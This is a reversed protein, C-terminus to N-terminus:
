ENGNKIEEKRTLYEVWKAPVNILSILDQETKSSIFLEAALESIEKKFHKNQNGFRALYYCARWRWKSWLKRYKLDEYDMSSNSKKLKEGEDEYENYIMQLRNILSRNLKKKQDLDPITKGTEICCYLHKVKKSIIKFDNWSMPTGLFSIADKSKETSKIVRSLKKASDEAEGALKAAKFLPYRNPFISIGASLSFAPNNCTFKKFEEYMWIALDPLINWLGIIFVDDGGSYIIQVNDKISIDSQNESVGDIANWYKDKIINLYSSFFFDLLTSMQVVRSITAQGMLGNRFIKGLNDVDMRLVGLRKIGTANKRIDDYEGSLSWNGGYFKWGNELAKGKKVFEDDNVFNLRETENEILYKYNDNDLFSIKEFGLIDFESNIGSSIAKLGSKLEFGINQSIFQEESIYKENEDDFLKYINGFDHTEIKQYEVSGINLKESSKYNEIDSKYCIDKGTGSCQIVDGSPEIPEFFNIDKILTSFKQHKSSELKKNLEDWKESFKLVKKGEESVKGIFDIGNLKIFDCIIGIDGNYEKLLKKELEILIKSIKDITMGTNAALIYFKGGSSYLINALSLDLQGDSVIWRSISESLQQLFFSRGKLSKSAGKHSINYIYNQIGTLDGGFLLYRQENRNEVVQSDVELPKEFKEELYQTLCLAIASTIRSHEHLSVDPVTKWSSSPICWFYKKSLNYITEIQRVNCKEMDTQFEKFRKEYSKFLEKENWDNKPFLYNKPTLSSIPQIYTSDYDEIKSLINILPEQSDVHKDDIRDGSSLSDSECVIRAILRLESDGDNDNIEKKHHKAVIFNIVKDSFYDDVLGESLKDHKMFKVEEYARQFVKGIDHLLSGLYIQNKYKNYINM